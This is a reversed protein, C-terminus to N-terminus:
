IDPDQSTDKIRCNNWRNIIENLSEQNEYSVEYKEILDKWSEHANDDCKRVLGFHKNELQRYTFGM